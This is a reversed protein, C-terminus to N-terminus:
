SRWLREAGKGVAISSAMASVIGVQGPAGMVGDDDGWADGSPHCLLASHHVSTSPCGRIPVVCARASAARPDTSLSRATKAPASASCARLVWGGPDGDALLARRGRRAPGRRCRHADLGRAREIAVVDKEGESVDVTALPDSVLIEPLHLPVRRVGRRNRIWEARSIVDPFTAGCVRSFILVKVPARSRSAPTGQVPQGTEPSCCSRTTAVADPPGAADRLDSGRSAYAPDDCGSRAGTPRFAL